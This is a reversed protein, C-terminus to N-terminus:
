TFELLTTRLSEILLEVALQVRFTKKRLAISACNLIDASIENEFSPELISNCM